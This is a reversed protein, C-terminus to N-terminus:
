RSALDAMIAKWTEIDGGGYGARYVIVGDSDFAIKYSQSTIRLDALMRRGPMAVPWPHGQNDRFEVLDSLPETPDQGIAIFDLESAFVPYIDKLQSLERRCVPCWTAFFFMFVPRGAQVLEASSQETGDEGSLTFPLVLDGVNRGIQRAEIGPETAPEAASALSDDGTLDALAEPVSVDTTPEALTPQGGPSATGCAIAAILVALAVMLFLPVAPPRTIVSDMKRMQVTPYVGADLEPNPVTRAPNAGPV